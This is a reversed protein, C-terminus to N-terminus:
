INKVFSTWRSTMVSHFSFSVNINTQWVNLNNSVIEAYSIFMYLSNGFSKEPRFVDFLGQSRFFFVTEMLM